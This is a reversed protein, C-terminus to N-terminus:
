HVVRSSTKEVLRTAAPRDHRVFTAGLCVLLSTLHPIWLLILHLALLTYMVNLPLETNALWLNRPPPTWLSPWLNRPPPTWLSPWLNRPPPTWLSSICCCSRSRCSLLSFRTFLDRLALFVSQHQLKMLQTHSVPMQRKKILRCRCRRHHSGSLFLKRSSTARYAPVVLHKACFHAPCKLFVACLQWTFCFSNSSSSSTSHQSCRLFLHVCRETQLPKPQVPRTWNSLHSPNAAKVM